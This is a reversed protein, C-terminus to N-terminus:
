GCSSYGCSLCKGCGGEKYYTTEGCEPCKVYKIEKAEEPHLSRIHEELINGIMQPQSQLYRGDSFYGSVSFISQLDKLMFSCDDTRRMVASMLKGIARYWQSYESNEGNSNIFIEFPRTKGRETIDNITIYLNGKDDAVKYTKGGLIRQRKKKPEKAKLTEEVTAKTDKKGEEKTSLVGERTGERFSTFGKCGKDLAYWLVEEYEALTTKEPMNVTKSISGDIWEQFAAQVEIHAKPAVERSTKFFEWTHSQEAGLYEDTQKFLKWAYDEVAETKTSQDPQRVKRNYELAFIPELGNSINGALLSGTGVPPITLLALNRIGYKAIDDKLSQPLKQVFPAALYKDKDFNPFAGKEKALEVSARYATVACLYQLESAIQVATESDYPVRLMALFSGFGAVGNLGIRRDGQARQAIEEYPYDSVDLVNDLFRVATTIDQKYQELDFNDAWNIVIDFPKKVYKTVNVNGLDCVGFPPM